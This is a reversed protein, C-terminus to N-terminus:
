WTVVLQSEERRGIARRGTSGVTVQAVGQERDIARVGARM